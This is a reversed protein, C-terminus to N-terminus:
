DRSGLGKTGPMGNKDLLFRAVISEWYAPQPALFPDNHRGDPVIVLECNSGCFQALESAMRVPFLGDLAGHVILVPVPCARLADEANWIPPVAISFARPIGACQAANRLTTFASCLVLRHAPVVRVTAAAIGSGLSLGLISVPLPATLRHLVNFAAIADQEAQGSSFVGSTQGYGAYDFVLSAVGNAALLQQVAHWHAVTEGIGHCLLVSARAPESEPKVFVADLAHKRSPIAIRSSGPGATEMRGDWPVKGLLRDRAVCVRGLATVSISLLFEQTRNGAL